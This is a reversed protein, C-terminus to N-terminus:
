DQVVIRQLAGSVLLDRITEAGEAISFRVAGGPQGL